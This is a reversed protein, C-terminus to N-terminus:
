ARRALALMLAQGALALEVRVYKKKQCNESMCCVESCTSGDPGTYGIQCICKRWVDQERLCLM